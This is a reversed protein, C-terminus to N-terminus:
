PTVQRDPDNRATDEASEQPFVNNKLTTSAESWELLIMAALGGLILFGGLCQLVSLRAGWLPWEVAVSLVPACLMYMRLKWVSMRRLALYYLPLGIAALVGALLLSQWIIPKEFVTHWRTFTDTALGFVAFGLGTMIHNYLAVTEDDLTRLIHRIVFANAALGFAAVVIMADGLLHGGWDFEGIETLLGLGILMVPLLMLQPRGIRELGLSTGILVVFVVDLRFLMAVNTVTTWKLSAFWLLHIAVAIAGMLLLWGGMGRISLRRWGKGTTLVWVALLPVTVVRSFTGVLAVSWGEMQILFRLLLTLAVWPVVALLAYFASLM